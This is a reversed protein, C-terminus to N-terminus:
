AIRAAASGQPGAALPRASARLGPGQLLRLGEAWSGGPGKPDPVRLPCSGWEGRM